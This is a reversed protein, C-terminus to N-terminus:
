LFGKAAEKDENKNSLPIVEGILNVPYDSNNIDRDILRKVYKSFAGQKASHDWLGKEYSDIMSFSVQGVERKKESM